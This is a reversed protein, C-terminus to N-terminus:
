ERGIKNRLQILRRDSANLSEAQKAYDRAESVHGLDFLLDALLIYSDIREPNHRIAERFSSAAEPKHGQRALAVGLNFYGPGLDPKLQVSRAFYAASEELRNQELLVMGLQFHGSASNTELAIHRRLSVEAEAFRRQILQLRGAVLWTEAFGPHERLLQDVLPAANSLQRNLLFLQARDSLSRPDSRSQRAESEFPDHVPVDPPLTAAREAAARAAAPDGGRQYLSARLSWAARATRPDQLCRDTTALAAATDGRASHLLALKLLAPAHDPLEGLLTELERRAEDGRGNEALLAALRLRPAEPTNGCLSVTRQLLPIAEAPSRLALSIGHLYPWRPEKPDLRTAVALCYEANTTFEFVRLTAGLTGWAPGSKPTARVAELRQTLLTAATPDLQELALQPLSPAKQQNVWVLAAVGIGAAVVAIFSARQHRPAAPRHKSRRRAKM